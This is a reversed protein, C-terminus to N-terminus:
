FQDVQAAIVLITALLIICHCLMWLRFCLSFVFAIHNHQLIIINLVFFNVKLENLNKSKMMLLM